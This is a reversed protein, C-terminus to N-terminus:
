RLARVSPGLGDEGSGGPQDSVVRGNGNVQGRLRERAMEVASQVRAPPARAFNLGRDIHEADRLFLSIDDFVTRQENQGMHHPSLRYGSISACLTPEDYSELARQIAKRRKPDLSAKPHQYESRWHDFVRDVPGGDRKQAVSPSRLSGSDATLLGSDPTLSSPTLAAPAPIERALVPSAGHKDPAPMTSAGPSDPAPIKSPAEKVHPSQHEGFKLVQIYATKEVTYRQIFGQDHLWQLLPAVDLGERYPFAQAKIRLPRDELRGERDAMMWLREFLLTCFPDATGLVENDCIGPKISRARLAVAVLDVPGRWGLVGPV